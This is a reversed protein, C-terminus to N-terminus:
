TEPPREQIRLDDPAKDYDIATILAVDLVRAGDNDTFVVLLRGSPNISVHDRTPVHIVTGDGSRLWFPKGSEIAQRIATSTM